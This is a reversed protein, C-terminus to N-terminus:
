IKGFRTVSHVQIGRVRKVDKIYTDEDDTKLYHDRMWARTYMPDINEHEEVKELFSIIKQRTSESHL